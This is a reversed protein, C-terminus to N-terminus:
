WTMSPRSLGNINIKVAEPSGGSNVMTSNGPYLYGGLYDFFFVQSNMYATMSKQVLTMSLGPPDYKGLSWRNCLLEWELGSRKASIETVIFHM